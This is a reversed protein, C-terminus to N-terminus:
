AMAGFRARHYRRSSCLRQCWWLGLGILATYTASGASSLILLEWESSLGRSPAHGLHSACMGLALTLGSIGLFGWWSDLWIQRPLRQWLVTLWVACLLDIGFGTAALSDSVLGWGAAWLLGTTGAHHQAMWLLVLWSWLPQCGGIELVPSLTTQLAFASYIISLMALIRFITGM